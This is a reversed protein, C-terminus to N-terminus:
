RTVEIASAGFAARDREAFTLIAARMRESIQKETIARDGEAYLDSLDLPAGLYVRVPTRRDRPTWNNRLIGWLSPQIGLVFAPIVPVQALLALRGVGPQGPLLAYPDPGKNRTGEPHVGVMAKPKSLLGAAEEVSYRNFALKQKERFIPPYLSFGGLTANILLGLLRQYFFNARVPFYIRRGVGGWYLASSLVFFDYFTRHNSVLLFSAHAPLARAHEIGEVQMSRKIILKFIPGLLHRQYLSLPLKLLRNMQRALAFAFREFAGLTELKPDAKPRSRGVSTPDPMAGTSAALGESTQLATSTVAGGSKM